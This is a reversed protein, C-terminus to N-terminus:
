IKFPPTKHFQTVPHHDRRHNRNPPRPMRPSQGSLTIRNQITRQRIADHPRHSLTIIEIARLVRHKRNGGRRSQHGDSSGAPIQMRSPYHRDQGQSLNPGPSANPIGRPPQSIRSRIRATRISFSISRDSRRISWGSIGSSTHSPNSSASSPLPMSIRSSCKLLGGTQSVLVGLM